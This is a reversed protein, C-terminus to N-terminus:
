FRGGCAGWSADGLGLAAPVRPRLLVWCQATVECWADTQCGEDVTMEVHEKYLARSSLERSRARGTGDAWCSKDMVVWGAKPVRM